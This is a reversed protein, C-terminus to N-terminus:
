CPLCYPSRLVAELQEYTFVPNADTVRHAPGSRMLDAAGASHGGGTLLHGVEHALVWPDRAYHSVIVAPQHPASTGCGLTYTKAVPKHLAAVVFATISRFDQVGFRAYLEAQEPSSAGHACETELVALRAFSQPDLRVAEQSALQFYIKYKGYVRQAAQLAQSTNFLADQVFRLHVRVVRNCVHGLSDTMAM